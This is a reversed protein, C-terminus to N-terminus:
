NILKKGDCFAKGVINGFGYYDHNMPDYILPRMKQPDVKGKDNLVSVDVSIDVIKAVCECEADNFRILECELAMPLEEFIPADVKSSRVSHFCVKDMKKPDDNGSVIGVFDCEKVYKETAISVTFARGRKINEVTRHSPDLCVYIENDNHICGWAANMANVSGDSNYTGIILVPEPYLTSASGINKRM